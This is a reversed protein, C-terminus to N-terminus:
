SRFRTGRYESVIYASTHYSLAMITLVPNFGGNTVHVSGDALFINESEWLQGNKNCVSTKPDSGMRCTGAQHQGGSMGPGAKRLWTRSAGATEVWAKAKEAMANGIEITHPHRNGSLRAVPIGWGDRVKPDLQVRSDWVPMEQTPGMVTIARKYYQRMYDKHAKGWRPVSPPKSSMFHIPLRIFENALMGGGRLGPNGHNYDCIAISAGPGLDDYTEFDFLGIAGTYTHGQLNRGVWDYRNGLGNPFLRSQSNLLLRATEIASGAVVVVDAPQEHLHDHEDFYAVGTAHGRGDVLIEKVTSGM